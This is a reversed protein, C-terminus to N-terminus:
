SCNEDNLCLPNFYSLFIENMKNGGPEGGDTQRAPDPRSRHRAPMIPRGGMPGAVRISCKYLPPISYYTKNFSVAVRIRDM